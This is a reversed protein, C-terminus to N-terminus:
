LITMNIDNGINGKFESLMVNGLEKEHSYATFRAPPFEIL